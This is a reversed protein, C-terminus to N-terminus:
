SAVSTLLRDDPTQRLSHFFFSQSPLHRFPYAKPRPNSERWTWIYLTTNVASKENKM